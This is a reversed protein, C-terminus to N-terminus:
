SSRSPRSRARTPLWVSLALLAMALPFHVVELRSHDGILGGIYAEVILLVAMAVSGVVLDRRSRLRVLAVFAALVALGIAVDAGRAHVEVWGSDNDKGERIFMGAWVGQLLIALSALGVLCSFLVDTARAVPQTPRKDLVQQSVAGGREEASVSAAAEVIGSHKGLRQGIFPRAVQFTRPKPRNSVGLGPM